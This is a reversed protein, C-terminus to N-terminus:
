ITTSRVYVVKDQKTKLKQKKIKIKIRVGSFSKRVSLRRKRGRDVTDTESLLPQLKLMFKM